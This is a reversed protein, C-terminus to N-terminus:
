DPKVTELLDALMDAAICKARMTVRQYHRTKVTNGSHGMNGAVVSDPAMAEGMMTAYSSRMNELTVHAIGHAKCYAKWNHAVTVPSTYWREPYKASYPKGSPVLPGSKGDALVLLRSAFPEGCIADRESSTNKTSKLEKGSTPVTLAKDIRIRAYTNGAFEHATIDDWVLAFAEEPRLGCGVMLLLCPEYKIGEISELFRPVDAYDLLRKPRPRHPAYQIAQVPNYPLLGLRIAINCMKKLLAGARRQVTPAHISTLVANARQWDIDAVRDDGIRPCLEKRWVREYDDVTKTALGDYTPQVHLTYFDGWTILEPTKSLRRRALEIEAADRNGDVYASRRKGDETWWIRYRNESLRQISGFHSRTM